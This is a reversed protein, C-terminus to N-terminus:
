YNRLAKAALPPSSGVNVHKESAVLQTLFDDVEADQCGLARMKKRRCPRGRRVVADRAQGCLRVHTSISLASWPGETRRYVQGAALPEVNPFVGGLLSMKLQEYTWIMNMLFSAFFCYQAWPELLFAGEGVKTYSLHGDRWLRWSTGLRFSQEASAYYLRRRFKQGSDFTVCSVCSVCAFHHFNFSCFSWQFSLDSLDYCIKALGPNCPVAYIGFDSVRYFDGETLNFEMYESGSLSCSFFSYGSAYRNYRSCRLVQISISICCLFMMSNVDEGWGSRTWSSVLGFRGRKRVRLTAFDVPTLDALQWGVAM